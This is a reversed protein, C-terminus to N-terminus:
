RGTARRRRARARRGRSGARQPPRRRRSRVRLGGRGPGVRRGGPGDPFALSLRLLVALPLLRRTLRDAAALVITATGAISIWWVVTEGLGAPREVLRAIAATWALSIAVPIAHVVVTLARAALPRATWTGITAAGGTGM